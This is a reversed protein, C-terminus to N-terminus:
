SLECSVPVAPVVSPVPDFVTERNLWEAWAERKEEMGMAHLVRQHAGESGPLSPDIREVRASSKVVMHEFSRFHLERLELVGWMGLGPGHVDHNGNQVRMHPSFRFACKPLQVAHTHRHEWDRHQFMRAYVKTVGPPVASLADAIPRGDPAYWFEDADFPIVWETGARAALANVWRPQFHYYEDDRCVFLGEYEDQLGRLIEPTEDDSADAILVRDVGEAFLHRVCAEIIDAENYVTAVGAVSM